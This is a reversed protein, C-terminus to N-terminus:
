ADTEGEQTENAAAFINRLAIAAAELQAVHERCASLAIRVEESGAHAHLTIGDPPRPTFILDGDAELDIKTVREM